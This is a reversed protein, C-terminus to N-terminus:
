SVIKYTTIEDCFSVVIKDYYFKITYDDYDCEDGKDYRAHNVDEFIDKFAIEKMAEYCKKLDLYSDGIQHHEKVGHYSYECEIQYGIPELNVFHYWDGNLVIPENDRDKVRYWTNDLPFAKIPVNDFMITHLFDDIHRSTNLFFEKVEFKIQNGQECDKVFVVYRKM